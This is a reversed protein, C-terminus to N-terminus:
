NRWNLRRERESISFIELPCPQYTGNYKLSRRAHVSDHTLHILRVQCFDQNAIQGAPFFSLKSAGSFTANLMAVQPRQRAILLYWLLMGHCQFATIVPLVSLLIPAGLLVRQNDAMKKAISPLRTCNGLM